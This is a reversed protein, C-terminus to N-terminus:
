GGICICVGGAIRSGQIVHNYSKLLMMCACMCRDGVVLLLIGGFFAQLAIAAESTGFTMGLKLGEAAAGYSGSMVASMFGGAIAASLGAIYTVSKAGPFQVKGLDSGRPILKKLLPVRNLISLVGMFNSSSGILTSALLASPVQLMGIGFGSCYAPWARLKWIGLPGAALFDALSVSASSPFYVMIAAIVALELAIFPLVTLAFPRDIQHVRLLFHILARSQCLRLLACVMRPLTVQKPQRARCLPALAHQMNAFILTGVM